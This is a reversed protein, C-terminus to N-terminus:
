LYMFWIIWLCHLFVLVVAHLGNLWWSLSIPTLPINPFICANGYSLSLPSTIIKALLSLLWTASGGNEFLCLVQAYIRQDYLNLNIHNYLHNQLHTKMEFWLIQPPPYISCQNTCHNWNKTYCVCLKQLIKLQIYGIKVLKELLM